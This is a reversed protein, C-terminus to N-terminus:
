LKVPIPEDSINSMLNDIEEESLTKIENFYPVIEGKFMNYTFIKGNSKSVATSFAGTILGEKFQQKKSVMVFSYFSGFDVAINKYLVGNAFNKKVQSYAQTVTINNM